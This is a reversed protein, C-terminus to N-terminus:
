CMIRAWSRKLIYTSLRNTVESVQQGLHHCKAGVIDESHTSGYTAQQEDMEQQSWQSCWLAVCHM